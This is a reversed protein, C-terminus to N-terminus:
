NEFPIVSVFSKNDQKRKFEITGDILAFLTHDKGIGVNLGPHHKTGRQRVIINGAKAAQGGFLKVGLRKSESERGNRSSGAGKKHAM